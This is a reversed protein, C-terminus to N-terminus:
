RAITMTEIKEAGALKLAKAAHRVTSGTTYIDDVIVINKGQIATRNKVKFIQPLNIREQRSKKSQKETHIRTLLETSNIQLVDLLAQAQNFGREQLRDKSLPIVTILDYELRQLREKMFPALVEALAYDGRYKYKAILEKLFDNYHFLSVNKTLYGAWEPNNEWRVCDLCLQERRFSEDLERSCIACTEGSIWAFKAECNSCICSKPQRLFLSTWTLPKRMKEYCIYCNAM